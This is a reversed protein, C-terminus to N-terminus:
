RRVSRRSIGGWISGTCESIKRYVSNDEGIAFVEPTGAATLGASVQKAHFGLSVWDTSDKNVYVINTFGIAFVESHKVEGANWSIASLTSM